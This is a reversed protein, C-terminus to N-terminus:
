RILVNRFKVTPGVPRYTSNTETTNFGIEVLALERIQPSADEFKVQAKMPIESVLTNSVKWWLGESDANGLKYNKTELVEGSSSIARSPSIGV